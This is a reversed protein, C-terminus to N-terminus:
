WSYFSCRISLMSFMSNLATEGYFIRTRMANDVVNVYLQASCLLRQANAIIKAVM